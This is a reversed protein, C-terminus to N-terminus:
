LRDTGRSAVAYVKTGCKLWGYLYPLQGLPDTGILNHLFQRLIPWDGPVPTIIHPSSTVLIRIGCMDLPGTNYGALPGAYAVDFDTQLLALQNDAASLAEGEQRKSSFGARQLHRRLSGENVIVWGDRSNQIWFGKHYADYYAPFVIGSQSVEPVEMLSTELTTNM